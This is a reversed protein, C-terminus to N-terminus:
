NVELDNRCELRLAILGLRDPLEDVANLRARLM